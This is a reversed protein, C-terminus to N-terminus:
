YTIGGSVFLKDFHGVESREPRECYLDGRWEGPQLLLGGGRMCFAIERKERLASTYTVKEGQVPIKHHSTTM